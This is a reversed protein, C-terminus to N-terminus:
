AQPCREHQSSEKLWTGFDQLEPYEDKLGKIDVAYGEERLWKFMQGMEPMAFAILSAVFTWTRPMEYGMVERFVTQAKEFNLEDGALGIARGAYAEPQLLAMSGFHGIDRASVLQLPKEGIQVWIAAFGKGTFNPMLNDMMGVPRLITWTMQSDACKTKLYREVNHKSKFHPIETPNTESVVPGGRDVSTFVFHKVEHTISADILATAQKGEDGLDGPCTMCFVADIPIARDFASLPFFLNGGIISVGENSALSTAKESTTNRTLCLIEFKQNPPLKAREDLLSNVVAGGQKGTAGTILFRQTRAM